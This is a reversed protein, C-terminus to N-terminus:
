EEIPIMGIVPMSSIKELQEKYKLTNDIYERFLVIVISIVLGILCSITINMIKKPGAPYEPLKVNEIVIITGNPILKKSQKILETTISEIINKCLFKNENQYKIELIQTEETPIVKLSKLVIEPAMDVDIENLSKQILDNTKVVESYTKLLNQYMQIDNSDYNKNILDGKGIFVKTSAEYTPILIFFNIIVAIITTILTLITITRWKNKLVEFLYHIRIEEERM